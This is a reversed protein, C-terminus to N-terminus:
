TRGAIHTNLIGIGNKVLANWPFSIYCRSLKQLGSLFKSNYNLSAVRSLLEAFSRPPRYSLLADRRDRKISSYSKELDYYTGLFNVTYKFLIMKNFNIKLNLENLIWFTFHLRQICNSVSVTGLIDDVYLVLWQQLSDLMPDFPYEFLTCFEEYEQYDLGQQSTNLLSIPIIADGPM